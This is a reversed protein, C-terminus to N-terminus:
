EVTEKYEQEGKIFDIYLAASWSFQHTGYGAKTGEPLNKRPDFYEYFGHKELLEICDQKIKEATQTMNFRLLGQYLLWNTNIWVPGRWYKEFNIDECGISYTPCLYMPNEETGRFFEGEINSLIREAQELTPIDAIIPILGSNTECPIVQDAVLDYANYIGYEEDWLKENMSHVTLENWLVFDSIDEGLIKGIEIMSENSWSLIANFLPDQIKFPCTSDIAAEDYKNKRFLDVLYVYRDYDEQTPRHATAKPNQLDKRQYSPIELQNTDLRALVTDWTPSNDTGPEWPHRVYVLGEENPDRFKYLYDHLSHIKPFMEKLFELARTKDKAARYMKLLVFGFVPPQTIGSTIFETPANETGETEWFNPGPFYRDEPDDGFVIHPLMGNKWQGKFLHRLEAEAREMDFHALGLAIFGADWNWQHPYLSPAPKTFLGNYNAELVAKAADLM